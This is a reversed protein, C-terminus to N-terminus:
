APEVKLSALRGYNDRLAKIYHPAEHRIVRVSGSQGTKASWVIRVHDAGAHDAIIEVFKRVLKAM